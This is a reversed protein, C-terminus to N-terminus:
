SHVSKCSGVAVKLTCSANETQIGLKLLTEEYGESFDFYDDKWDVRKQTEIRKRTKESFFNMQM